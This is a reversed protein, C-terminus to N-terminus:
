DSLPIDKTADKPIDKKAELEASVANALTVDLAKIAYDCKQAELQAKALDNTWKSRLAVMNKVNSSFNNLSYEIGDLSISQPESSTM